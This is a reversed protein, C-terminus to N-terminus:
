RPRCELLSWHGEPRNCLEFGSAAFLLSWEEVTRERGGFIVLMDIDLFKGYDWENPGAIVPEIVLLRAGTEAITDRIRRLLRTAQEDPWNHLVAKLVYADCGVPLPDVFFDGPVVTIRDRLGHDAVVGAARATVAPLDMLYGVASPDRALVQCLFYGDGGGIDAISSFREMRFGALREAVVQRSWGQMFRDFFSGTAPDAALHDYFSVGFTREFVPAGTRVSHLLDAYPRRVIELSSYTVLPLVSDPAAARLGDALPTLAFHRAPEEAFLGIASACRLLRYLAPPHTETREALDHVTRPGGALHDAIELEALVRVIAALRGGSALLLLHWAHLDDDPLPTAGAPRTVGTV